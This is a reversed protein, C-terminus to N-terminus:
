LAIGDEPFYVSQHVDLGLDMLDEKCSDMDKSPVDLVVHHKRMVIIRNTYKQVASLDHTVLIITKGQEHLHSLLEMILASQEEDLSSTPEDAIIIEPDGVIISAIALKQRQSRSLQHPHCDAYEALGTVALIRDVKAEIEKQPLRRTKLIFGVEDKVTNAFIQFDPNQFLFGIKSRLAALNKKTLAQNFMVISGKDPMLLGEMLKLLTTKGSGNLGVLGIFDGRSVALNINECGLFVGKYTFSLDKVEIIKEESLNNQPKFQSVLRNTTKWVAKNQLQQLYEHPKYEAKVTGDAVILVRNAYPLIDRARDMVMIVTVGKEKNLYGLYAYLDKKGQSDLEATPQDLVLIPTEMALVSAFVVRQAQGGSLEDTKRDHFDTLGVFELYHHTRRTIEEWSLNMNAIGFAVEEGVSISIMQNQPEQMMYGIYDCMGSLPIEQTDRGMVRSSGNIEGNFFKVAAGTICHLLMSKGSAVEGTIAVFDGKQITLDIDKLVIKTAPPFTLAKIKLQVAPEM